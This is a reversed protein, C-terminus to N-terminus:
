PIANIKEAEITARPSDGASNYEYVKANVGTCGAGVLRRVASVLLRMENRRTGTAFRESTHILFVRGGRAELLGWQAPLEAVTIMGPPALFYRYDGMANTDHLRFGKHKDRLFDSRSAKCEVLTSTLSFGIADPTECAGSTMDTIVVPHDKRLWRAALAVLEAHTM